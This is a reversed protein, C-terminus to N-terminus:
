KQCPIHMPEEANPVFVSMCLNARDLAGEGIERDTSLGLLGKVVRVAHDVGVQGSTSKEVQADVGQGPHELGEVVWGSDARWAGV